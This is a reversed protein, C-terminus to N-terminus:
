VFVKRFFCMAASHLKRLAKNRRKCVVFFAVFNRKLYVVQFIGRVCNRADHLRKCADVKYVSLNYAAFVFDAVVQVKNYASAVCDICVVLKNRNKRRVVHEDTFHCKQQIVSARGCNHCDAAALEDLNRFNREKVKYSPVRM